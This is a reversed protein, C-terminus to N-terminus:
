KALASRFARRFGNDLDGNTGNGHLSRIRRFVDEISYSGKAGKLLLELYQRYCREADQNKHLNQFCKGLRYVCDTKLANAWAKSEWCPDKAPTARSQLLSTYIKAAKSHQGLADLAGALNWLTLPCDPVLNRSKLFRKLAEKYRGREYFTVGLQTLVWHDDPKQLHESTLLKRAAEWRGQAFLKNIRAGFKNHTRPM